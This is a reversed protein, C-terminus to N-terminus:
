RYITQDARNESIRSFDTLWFGIAALNLVILVIRVRVRKKALTGPVAELCEAVRDRTGRIYELIKDMASRREAEWVMSGNFLDDLRPMIHVQALCDSKSKTPSSLGSVPEDDPPCFPLPYRGYATIRSTRASVGSGFPPPEALQRIIRISVYSQFPLIRVGTCPRVGISRM